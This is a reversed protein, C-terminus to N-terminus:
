FSGATDTLAPIGYPRAAAGGIGRRTTASAGAGAVGFVEVEATAPEDEAGTSLDEAAGVADDGTRDDDGV